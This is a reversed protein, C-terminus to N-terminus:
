FQKIWAMVYHTLDSMWITVTNLFATPGGMAAVVFLVFITLPITTMWGEHPKGSVDM